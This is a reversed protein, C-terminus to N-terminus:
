SQARAFRRHRSRVSPASPFTAAWLRQENDDFYINRLGLLTPCGSPGPGPSTFTFRRLSPLFVGFQHTNSLSCFAVAETNALVTGAYSTGAVLPLRLHSGCRTLFVGQADEAVGFTGDFWQLPGMLPPCLSRTLKPSNLDIIRFDGVSPVTPQGTRIDYYVNTTPGCSYHVGDGCPQNPQERVELWRAGIAYINSNYYNQQCVGHCPFRRLRGTRTDYLGYFPHFQAGPFDGCYLAVWPVGVVGGDCGAPMVMRKGTRDDILVFREPGRRPFQSFGVYPGSVSPGSVGRAVLRYKFHAVVPAVADAAVAPAGALIASLVVSVGLVRRLGM